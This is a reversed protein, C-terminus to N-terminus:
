AASELDDALAALKRPIERLRETTERKWGAKAIFQGPSPMFKEASRRWTKCAEAMQQGTIGRLDDLWDSWREASAQAPMDPQPYHLALRALHYGIEEDTAPRLWDDYDRAAARVQPADAPTM